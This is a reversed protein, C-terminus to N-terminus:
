EEAFNHQKKTAECQHEKRTGKDKGTGADHQHEQEYRQEEDSEKIEAGVPKATLDFGEIRSSGLRGM